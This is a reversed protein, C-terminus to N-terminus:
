RKRSARKKAARKKAATGRASDSATPITPPKIAEGTVRSLAAAWLRLRLATNPAGATDSEVAQLFGTDDFLQMYAKRARAAKGRLARRVGAQAHYYILADFIARNFQRSGPKRAVGEEGFVELLVKVGAEFDSVARVVKPEYVSWSKNFTSFSRDLFAKMRGPYEDAFFHFALYRALIEIDRMRPDPSALGLLRKLGDSEAATEDAYDAYAGPLLAQRLEQPSLKVSGTNLRLFVTHLFNSDTWNRIVVTRISQNSLANYDAQLDPDTAIDQFTKQKLDPRLTL